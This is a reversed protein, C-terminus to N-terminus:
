YSVGVRNKTVTKLTKAELFLCYLRYGSYGNAQRLYFLLMKTISDLRRKTDGAEGM